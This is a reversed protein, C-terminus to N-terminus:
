KKVFPLAPTADLLITYNGSLLTTIGINNHGKQLRGEQAMRADSSFIRYNTATAASVNLHDNAPNPYPYELHRAVTSAVATFSPLARSMQYLSAPTGVITECSIFLRNGPMWAIAETQWAAGNSIDIKRKNGSFFRDGVYDNLLWLFSNTGLLSYGILVVEGSHEDYSAGTILGGVNYSAHPPLAYTGPAKCVRYVRTGNDGRNKTFLYLSDRVSIAAECDYNNFPNSTFSTQDSYSLYIAQANVHVLRATDIDSKAIKLIKLDTRDGNNNGCDALYIYNSDATIDEWDSNPFNDVHVIQRIAGTATDISYIDSPNGSDNHSWLRGDSYILGSSEAIATDMATLLSPSVHTYPYICSGNNSSATPDYNSAAPDTCGTQALGRAPLAILLYVIFLFRM